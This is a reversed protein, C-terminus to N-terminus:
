TPTPIVRKIGGEQLPWQRFNLRLGVEFGRFRLQTNVQAFFAAVLEDVTKAEVGVKDDV